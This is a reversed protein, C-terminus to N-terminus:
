FLFVHPLAIHSTVLAISYRVASLQPTWHDYLSCRPPCRCFTWCLFAYVTLAFAMQTPRFIFRENVMWNFAQISAILRQIITPACRMHVHQLYLCVTRCVLVPFSYDSWITLCEFQYGVISHQLLLLMSEFENISACLFSVSASYWFALVASQVTNMDVIICKRRCLVCRNKRHAARGFTGRRSTKHSHFQRGVSM